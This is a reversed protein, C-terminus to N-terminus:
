RDGGNTCISVGTEKFLEGEERSRRKRTEKYGSLQTRKMKEVSHEEEGLLSLIIM